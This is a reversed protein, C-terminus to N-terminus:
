KGGKMTSALERRFTTSSPHHWACTGKRTMVDDSSAHDVSVPYVRVRKIRKCITCYFRKM